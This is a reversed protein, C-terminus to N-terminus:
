EAAAESLLRYGVGPVSIIYRPSTPEPEIRRKLRHVLQHLMEYTYGGEGWLEIGIKDRPCVTNLHNYLCSILKFELVSLKQELKKGDVWVEWTQADVKVPSRLQDVGSVPLVRTATQGTSEERYSLRTEGIQVEDGTRLRHEGRIVRGSVYTGNTSGSDVVFFQNDRLEISAHQRSAFEDDLVIDCDKGRGIRVAEGTLPFETESGAHTTIVLKAQTPQAM